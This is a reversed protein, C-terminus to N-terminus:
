FKIYIGTKDDQHLNNRKEFEVIDTAYQELGENQIQRVMREWNRDKPFLGDTIMVIEQVEEKPLMGIHLFHESAQDGNLVAYGNVKNALYRNYILANRKIQYFDENPINKGERRVKERHQRARNSIGFVMDETIKKFEGSKSLTFIMCDGIQAFQIHEDDVLQIMALCTCWLEEKKKTDINYKKMEEALLLNAQSLKAKISAPEHNRIADGVLRSALVAGNKGDRNVFDSIPTAGDLVAFIGKKEDSIFYDECIRKHDSKIQITEVNL